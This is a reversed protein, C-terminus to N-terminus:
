KSRMENLFYLLHYYVMSHLYDRVRNSVLGLEPTKTFFMLVNIYNHISSQELKAEQNIKEYLQELVPRVVSSVSGEDENCAVERFVREFYEEYHSYDAFSVQLSIDVWETLARM